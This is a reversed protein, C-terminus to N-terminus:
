ALEGYLDGLYARQVQQNQAIERPTGEALVAGQSMVTIIDSINMVMDMRHEVLIATRNKEKVVQNIIEILEPVQESSMGATPEDFLLLEPECAMMIGLELKRKEGHPLNRVLFLERGDLGVQHIVEEAREIYQPFNEALHLLKYNDKGMAQAALRINELVTLNPFINTIQFSRGIGLHARRQPPLNTINKGKFYVSGETPPMVGSLLNFLTTKGAGNPGIIAHMTHEKVQINVNDVAILGGFAKRLKKAELITQTSM